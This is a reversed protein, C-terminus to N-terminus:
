RSPSSSTPRRRSRRRCGSAVDVRSADDARRRRARRAVHDGARPRARGADGPPHRARHRAARCARAPDGARADRVLAAASAPDEGAAIRQEALGLDMAVAVLRAQAGDHLDREIRELEAQAADVAGARTETSTSSASSSSAARRCGLLSSAVAGSASACGRVVAITVAAPRAGLRLVARREGLQRRRTASTRGALRAPIAGGGRPSSILALTTAGAPSRVHLRDHRRRAAAARLRHGVVDARRAPDGETASGSRDRLERWDDRHLPLAVRYRGTVARRARAPARAREVWALGRTVFM